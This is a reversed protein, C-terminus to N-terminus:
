LLLGSRAPHMGQYEPSEQDEEDTGALKKNDAQEWLNIRM